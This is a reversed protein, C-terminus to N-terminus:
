RTCGWENNLPLAINRTKHELDQMRRDLKSIDKRVEDFESKFEKQMEELRDLIPDNKQVVRNFSPFIPPM